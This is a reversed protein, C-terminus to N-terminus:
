NKFGGFLDVGVAGATGIRAFRRGGGPRVGPPSGARLQRVSGRWSRWGHRDRRGTPWWRASCRPLDLRFGGLLDVGAAGIGASGRGGRSRTGPPSGARVMSCIRMAESLDSGIRDLTVLSPPREYRFIANGHSKTGIKTGRNNYCESRNYKIYNKFSRKGM